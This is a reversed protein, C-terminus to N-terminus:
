ESSKVGREKIRGARLGRHSDTREDWAWGELSQIPTSNPSESGIPGEQEGATESRWAQVLGVLLVTGAPGRKGGSPFGEHM